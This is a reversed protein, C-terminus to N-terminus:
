GIHLWAKKKLSGSVSFFVNLSQKTIFIFKPSPSNGKKRTEICGKIIATGEERNLV